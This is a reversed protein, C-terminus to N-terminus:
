ELFVVTPSVGEYQDPLWGAPAYGSCTPECYTYRKGNVTLTAGPSEQTFRVGSALHGPYYLLVAELGTLDRVLRSFLIARDECDSYPYFITEDPFFPRDGGWIEDDYGYVFATQLFNLLVNVADVENLGQIAKKLSPYLVERINASLPTNAYFQWKTTPDNNIYSQPYTDFFDILNKNCSLNVTIGKPGTSERKEVPSPRFAFHQEKGINLSLRQENPFKRNFIFMDEDTPQMIFFKENDLVFYNRGFMVQDSAVLLYLKEQQTRALRVKYGSQNFLYAQLVTAENTGKGLFDSALQELLQFYAWDCLNLEERLDLCDIILNNYRPSALKQWTDAVADERANSLKFRDKDDLRVRCETGFVSFSFGSKVAPAVPAPEPQPAPTPAPAPTPTPTPVPAPLADEEPIDEEEEDDEAIEPIPTVPVPQVVVPPAPYVDGHLITITPPIKNLDLDKPVDVPPVPPDPIPTAEEAPQPSFREWAERMFQIYAQNAENRFDSYEKQAQKKFAEYRKFMEDGPSQAYLALVSLAFLSSIIRKM